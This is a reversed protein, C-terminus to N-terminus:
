ARSIFEGTVTNIKIKEDSGLYEPIQVVLGTSLTAPKTRASASAGKIGPATEVIQLIVTSPLEIALLQGDAILAMLGEIDSDMYPLQAELLDNDVTYQEYSQQDMFTCSDTERFLLQVQRREFAVEQLIEDGKFSKEFKQKNVVDRATIKYLTNGGRATPSQVQTETVVYNHNDLSFVMGKKVQSAKM